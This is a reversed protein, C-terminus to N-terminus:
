LIRTGAFTISLGSATADVTTPASVVLLDGPNFTQSSAMAFVGTTSSTFTITGIQTGNKKIKFVATSTSATELSAYSGTCNVALSFAIVANIGIIEQNSNFSGPSFVAIAYDRSAIMVQWTAGDVPTVNSNAVLAIYVVNNYSVVDYASYATASSWPGRWLFGDGVQRSSPPLSPNINGFTLVDM